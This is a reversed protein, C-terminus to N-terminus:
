ANPMAKAPEFGTQLPQKKQREGNGLVELGGACYGWCCGCCSLWLWILIALGGEGYLRSGLDLGNCKLGCLFRLSHPPDSFRGSYFGNLAM